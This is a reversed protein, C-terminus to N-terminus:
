KLDEGKELVSILNRLQISFDYVDKQLFMYSSSDLEMVKNVIEIEKVSKSNFWTYSIYDCVFRLTLMYKKNKNKVNKFKKIFYELSSILGNNRIMMPLKKIGPIDFDNIRYKEKFNKFIFKSKERDNM